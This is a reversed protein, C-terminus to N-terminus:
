LDDTARMLGIGEEEPDYRGRRKASGGYQEQQTRQHVSYAIVGVVVVGGGLALFVILMFDSHSVAEGPNSGADGRVRADAHQSIKDLASGTHSGKSSKVLGLYHLAAQDRPNARLVARWWKHAHPMDGENQYIDALVELTGEDKELSIAKKAQEEAKKMKHEAQYLRALGEHARYFNPHWKIVDLFIGKAKTLKDQRVQIM